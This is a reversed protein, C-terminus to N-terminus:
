KGLFGSMKDLIAQADDAAKQRVKPANRLNEADQSALKKSVEKRIKELEPDNAVNLRPLLNVLEVANEVLSDRFIADPNSLTEAFRKTVEALRRFLDETANKVRRDVSEELAKSIRDSDRKQLKVRFDDAHPVPEIDTGFDFKREIEHTSPYDAPNFMGSLRTEAEERYQPYNQVFERVAEGFKEKLTRMEKSYAMFNKAPLIRGGADDWPLTQEYHFARAATAARDIVQISEKAILVKNFRGSDDATGYERIVKQTITKDFKRATWKSISLRVIMAEDHLM